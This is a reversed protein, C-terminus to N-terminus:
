AKGTVILIRGCEDCRVVGSTRRLHEVEQAPLQMHCGLCTSGSLAAAGVGGKAARLDNYFGLLDAATRSAWHERRPRAAELEESVQRSAEDRRKATSDVAARVQDIQESLTSMQKELVETEEMVELDDDEFKLRRRRLSEVEAALSSLERASSVDGSNLRTEEMVIKQGITDVENDLRRQRIAVDNLAAQTEGAERELARLQEELAELEAQEPLDRLRANLRDIASDIKQLELLQLLEEPTADM